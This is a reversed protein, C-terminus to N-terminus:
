RPARPRPDHVASAASLSPLGATYPAAPPTCVHASGFLPDRAYTPEGSDTSHDICDTALVVQFSVRGPDDWVIGHREM